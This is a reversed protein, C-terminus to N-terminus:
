LGFFLSCNKLIRVLIGSPFEYVNKNCLFSIYYECDLSCNTLLYLVTKPKVLILQVFFLLFGPFIQIDHNLTKQLQSHRKNEKLSIM